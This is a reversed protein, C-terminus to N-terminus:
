FTNGQDVRLPGQRYWAPPLMTAESYWGVKLIYVGIVAYLCAASIVVLVLMRTALTNPEARKAFDSYPLRSAFYLSVGSIVTLASMSLGEGLYQGRAGQFLYQTAGGQGVGVWAMGHLLNYFIGSTSVYYIFLGVIAIVSPKRRSLIVLKFAGFVLGVLVGILMALRALKEAPTHYLPVDSKTEKNVWDLMEQGTVELKTIPFKRNPIDLNGSPGMVFPSRDSNVHVIHPLTNLNHLRGIDQHLGVDAVGFFIPVEDGEAGLKGAERFSLAAHTLADVFPKCIRCVQVNATYIIFLNYKQPKEAVFKWYSSSDFNVLVDGRSEYSERALRALGSNQDNMAASCTVLLVSFLKTFSNM